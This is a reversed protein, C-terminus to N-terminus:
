CVVNLLPITIDALRFMAQPNLTGDGPIEIEKGSGHGGATFLYLRQAYTFAGSLSQSKAAPNTLHPIVFMGWTAIGTTLPIHINGSKSFSLLLSGKYIVDSVQDDFSDLLITNGLTTKLYTSLTAMTILRLGSTTYKCTTAITSIDPVTGSGLIIGVGKYTQLVGNYVWSEFLMQGDTIMM